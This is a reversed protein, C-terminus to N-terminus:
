PGGAPTTSRGAAFYDLLVTQLHSRDVSQIGKAVALVVRMTPPVRWTQFDNGSWWVINPVDQIAPRPVPWIAYAAKAVGNERLVDLWGGTEIPDLFVVM